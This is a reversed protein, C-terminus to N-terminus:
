PEHAPKGEGCEPCWWVGEGPSAPDERYNEPWEDRPLAQTTGIWKMDSGAQAVHTHPGIGYMPFCPIGDPDLCRECCM